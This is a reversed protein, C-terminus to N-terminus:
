ESYYSEVFGGFGNRARYKASYRGNEVKEEIIQLSDPDKLISKLNERADVKINISETQAQDEFKPGWIWALVCIAVIWFLGGSAAAQKNTTPMKPKSSGSFFNNHVGSNRIAIRDDLLLRDLQKLTLKNTDINRNM